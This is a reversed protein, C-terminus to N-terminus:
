FLWSFYHLVFWSFVTSWRFLHLLFGRYIRWTTKM